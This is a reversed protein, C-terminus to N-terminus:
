NNQSEESIPSPRHLYILILHLLCVKLWIAQTVPQQPGTKKEIHTLLDRLSIKSCDCVRLFLLIFDTRGLDLKLMEMNDRCRGKVELLYVSASILYMSWALIYIIFKYNKYFWSATQANWSSTLDLPIILNLYSSTIVSTPFGIYTGIQYEGNIGPLKSFYLFFFIM